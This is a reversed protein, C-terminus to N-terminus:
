LFDGNQIKGLFLLEFVESERGGSNKQTKKAFNVYKKSFYCKEEKRKFINSRRRKRKVRKRHSEKKRKKKISQWDYLSLSVPSLHYVDFYVAFYNEM